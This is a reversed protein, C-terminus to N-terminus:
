GLTSSRIMVSLGPLGRRGSGPHLPAQTNNYHDAYGPIFVLPTPPAKVTVNVTSISTQTISQGGPNIFYTPPASRQGGGSPSSSGPSSSGSNSSGAGGNSASTGGGTSGGTGTSGSSGEAAGASAGSGANNGSGSGTDSGTSGGAGPVTSAPRNPDNAWFADLAREPASKPPDDVGDTRTEWVQSNAERAYSEAAAITAEAWGLASADPSSSGSVSDVGM